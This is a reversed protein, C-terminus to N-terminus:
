GRSGVIDIAKELSENAHDFYHVADTIRDAADSFGASALRGGTESLERAHQKNHDLMYKLLALDKASAGAANGSGTARSHEHDHEHDHGHDHGQDHDHDHNNDHKIHM